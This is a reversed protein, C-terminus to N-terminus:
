SGRNPCVNAFHSPDGCIFCSGSVPEGTASVFTVGGTRAGRQGRGRGGRRATSSSRSSSGHSAGCGYTGGNEQSDEWSCGLFFTYNSAKKKEQHVQAVM